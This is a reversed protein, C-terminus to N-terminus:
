AGAIRGQTCTFSTSAHVTDDLRATGGAENTIHWGEYDASNLGAADLVSRLTSGPAVGQTVPQKGPRIVTIYIDSM